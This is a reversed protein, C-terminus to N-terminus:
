IDSSSNSTHPLKLMDNIVYGAIKLGAASPVFSVSGPTRTGTKLPPEKSYLVTLKNIGRNKLERRMVRCLPCVSTKQIDSIEFKFPDLKNGTGMSSICPIGKRECYEALAIKASITDIADVIYDPRRNKGGFSEIQAMVDSINEPLVFTDYTMVEASPDIDHIRESAVEIKKRGLTSHLAYLQRNINSIDVTDADILSLYRVGSRALAECVYSGVGGLGFVAVHKDSIRNFADNGVLMIMRSFEENM